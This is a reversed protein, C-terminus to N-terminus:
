NHISDVNASDMETQRLNTKNNSDQCYGRCNSLSITILVLCFMLFLVVNVSNEFRYKM